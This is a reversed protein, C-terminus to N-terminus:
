RSGGVREVIAVEVVTGDPELKRVRPVWDRRDDGPADHTYELVYVDGGHVAVATPRWPWTARLVSTVAGDPTIRLVAGCASAAAHVTGDEAVALGRLFPGLKADWDPSRDCEPVEIRSAVTAIEGRPDIRRVAADEAYYISGDPRAAIGNLWRVPGGDSEAPLTTLVGRERAPSLRVIELRGDARPEAFYLAGDAGVTVPYDSSLLLTPKRGLARM